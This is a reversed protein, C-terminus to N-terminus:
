ALRPRSGGQLWDLTLPTERTPKYEAAVTGRYGQARLALGVDDLPLAGSGPEGRGPSDALQVHGISDGASLVLHVLDERNSGLHFTDLLFKVSASGVRDILSLADDATELPYAGNLGRALPEVLITGEIASVAEAARQYSRVALADLEQRSRGSPLKGHLLNFSRCDTARALHTLAELAQELENERGPICAIGREGAAMDGAFVNMGTLRVGAHKIAASVEDLRATGPHATNFPWWSEVTTFGADRAAGFRELYPLETFLLSVNASVTYGHWNM